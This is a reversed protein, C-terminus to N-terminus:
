IYSGLRSPCTDVGRPGFTCPLCVPPKPPLTVPAPLRRLRKVVTTLDLGTVLSLAITASDTIPVKELVLFELYFQM